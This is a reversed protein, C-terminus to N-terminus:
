LRSSTAVGAASGAAISAAEIATDTLDSLEDKKSQHNHAKQRKLKEIELELIKKWFSANKRGIVVWLM